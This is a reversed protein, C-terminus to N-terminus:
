RSCSPGQNYRKRFWKEFQEITGEFFLLEGRIEARQGPELDGFFPDAHMCPHEANTVLSYTSDYWSFATLRQGTNSVTVMVPLDAAAPGARWGLRFRGSKHGSAIGKEFPQWGLEPLHVFKNDATFDSFEKAARMFACTQLKINKLKVKSGNEIYLELLAGSSDSNKVVSGGFKVANPLVREYGIGGPITQWQVKPLDSFMSPFKPNVHSLYMLSSETFIAEPFDLWIYDQSSWPPSVWAIQEFPFHPRWQGPLIRIGKEYPMQAAFVGVSIIALCFVVGLVSKLRKQELSQVPGLRYRPNYDGTARVGPESRKNNTSTM